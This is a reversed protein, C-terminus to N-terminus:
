CTSGAREEGSTGLTPFSPGRRLTGQHPALLKPNSVPRVKSALHTSRGLVDPPRLTFLCSQGVEPFGPPDESLQVKQGHLSGHSAESSVGGWGPGAGGWLTFTWFVARPAVILNRAPKPRYSDVNRSFGLNKQGISSSPLLFPQLFIFLWSMVLNRTWFSCIWKQQAVVLVRADCTNKAKAKNYGQAPTFCWVEKSSM